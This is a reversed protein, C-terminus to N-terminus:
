KEMIERSVDVPWDKFILSKVKEYDARSSSFDLDGYDLILVRVGKMKELHDLYSRQIKQLYDATITAEFGRGRKSIQSMLVEVPRYLYVLLDPKRLQRFMIEYLRMFLGFENDNLTNRAFILSKELFYDSIIGRSFLDVVEQKEILQKYREALFYMELPFGNRAPDKYFEPLFPNDEFQELVLRCNMDEALLRALTTKGAGITGEIAIFPYEKM